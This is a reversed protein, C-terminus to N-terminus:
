PAGAFGFLEFCSERLEPNDAQVTVAVTAGEPTGGTLTRQLGELGPPISLGGLRKGNEEVEVQTVSLPRDHFWGRDWIMGANLRWATTAPASPFEAVLRNAAGPPYFRVCRRPQFKIDHWQAAVVGGNPCRHQKGDWTCPQQNGDPARVYVRAGALSDVASFVVKSARGNQYLSLSLPGFSREAGVLTRKADFAAHFASADTRPLRPQAVVWVRPHNELDDSDSGIYGIVPVREPVFIRAHETWWPFLLVADGPQAQEDIAKALARFDEDKPLQGPLWLQFWLCWVGVGAFLLGLLRQGWVNV